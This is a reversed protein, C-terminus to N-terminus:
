RGENRGAPVRHHRGSEPEAERDAERAGSGGSRECGAWGCGRATRGDKRRRGARGGAAPWPHRGTAASCSWSSRPRHQPRAAGAASRSCRWALSARRWPPSLSPQRRPRSGGRSPTPPLVPLPGPSFSGCSGKGAEGTSFGAKEKLVRVVTDRVQVALRGHERDVVPM